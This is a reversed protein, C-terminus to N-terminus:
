DQFLTVNVLIFQLLSVDGGGKDGEWSEFRPLGMIGLM